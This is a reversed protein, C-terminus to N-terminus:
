ELANAERVKAFFLSKKCDLFSVLRAFNDIWSGPVVRRSMSCINNGQLNSVIARRPCNVRTICLLSTTYWWRRRCAFRFGRSMFHFQFMNMQYNEDINCFINEQVFLMLILFNFTGVLNYSQLTKWLRTKVSAHLFWRYFRVVNRLRCSAMKLIILIFQWFYNMDRLYNPEFQTRNSM